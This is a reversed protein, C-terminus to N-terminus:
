GDDTVLLYACIGLDIVVLALGWFGFLRSAWKKLLKLVTARCRPNRLCARPNPIGENKLQNLLDWISVAGFIEAVCLLFRGLPTNIFSPDKGGEETDSGKDTETKSDVSSVKKSTSAIKKMTSSRREATTGTVPRPMLGLDYVADDDALLYYMVGVHALRTYDSAVLDDENTPLNHGATSRGVCLAYEAFGDMYDAQWDQADTESLNELSEVDTVAYTDDIDELEDQLDPLCTDYSVASMLYPSAKDSVAM